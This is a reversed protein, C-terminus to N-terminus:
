RELKLEGLKKIDLSIANSSLTPASRAKGKARQVVMRYVVGDRTLVLPGDDDVIDDLLLGFMQRKRDAPGLHLYVDEGTFQTHGISGEGESFTARELCPIGRVRAGAFPRVARVYSVPMPPVIKVRVNRLPGQVCCAFELNATLAEENAAAKQCDSRALDGRISFQAISTSISGAGLDATWRCTGAPELRVWQDELDEGNIVLYVEKLEACRKGTVLVNVRSTTIQAQAATAALLLVCVLAKVLHIM